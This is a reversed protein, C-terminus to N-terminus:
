VGCWSSEHPLPSIAEGNKVEADTPPSHDAERGPRNEVPYLAGPVLQMPPQTLRLPPRVSHLLFLNCKGSISSQGDLGYSTSRSLQLTHVRKIKLKILNDEEACVSKNLRRKGRGKNWSQYQIFRLCAVRLRNWRGLLM